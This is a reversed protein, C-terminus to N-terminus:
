RVAHSTIFTSAGSDLYRNIPPPFRRTAALQPYQDALRRLHRRLDRTIQRHQAAPIRNSLQTQWRRMCADVAGAPVPTNDAPNGYRGDEPRPRFAAPSSETPSPTTHHM